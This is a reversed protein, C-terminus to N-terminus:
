FREGVKGLALRILSHEPLGGAPLRPCFGRSRKPGLQSRFHRQLRSLAHHELPVTAGGDQDIIGTKTKRCVKNTATQDPIVQTRGLSTAQSYVYLAAHSWNWKPQDKHVLVTALILAM